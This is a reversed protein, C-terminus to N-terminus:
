LYQWNYNGAQGKVGRACSCINGRNIGTERSAKHASEFIAIQQKSILDIQAILKRKEEAIKVTNHILLGNKIAHRRNESATVYEINEIVNNAKKGDKHNVQLKSEGYFASAM